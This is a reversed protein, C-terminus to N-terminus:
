IYILNPASPVIHSPSQQTVLSVNEKLNTVRTSRSCIFPLTNLDNRGIEYSHLTSFSNHFYGSLRPM